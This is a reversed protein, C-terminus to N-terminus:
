VKRLELSRKAAAEFADLFSSRIDKEELHRLAAETTGGKSTVRQRLLGPNESSERALLAAGVATQVALMRSVEEPLGASVAKEAMLEMLLFFYAPGSGSLATILDFYREELRVTKGCAGLVAEALGLAEQSDGAVATFSEGVQAGLNPMARIVSPVAGLCSRLRECSMGALISIVVHSPKLKKKFQAATDALDQPKVALVVIDSKQVVEENSAAQHVGYREAIEAAKQEFKDFVFVQEPAAVKRNILGHLIAGGMNGAGIFGITKVSLNM